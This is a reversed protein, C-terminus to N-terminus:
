RGLQRFELGMVGKRGDLSRMTVLALRKRGM